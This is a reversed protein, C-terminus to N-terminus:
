TGTEDTARMMLTEVIMDNIVTVRTACIMKAVAHSEAAKAAAQWREGGSAAGTTM